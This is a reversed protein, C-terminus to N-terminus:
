FMKSHTGSFNAERVLGKKNLIRIARGSSEILGESKFQQLLRVLTEKATGVMNAFDTRSMNIEGPGDQKEERKYKEDLILLNLAIRERVSKTALSTISNIFVSFEHGLTKLLKNSLVPSAQLVKLFNEKPIFTIESDEITAASDPYHEESLIAHYGLLERATCVYFIQEGGKATTKYKKIKGSVLYFIGAPIGGERFVIEGKKYRHTVSADRLPQLNEPSLGEFIGKTNYRFDDSRFGTTM